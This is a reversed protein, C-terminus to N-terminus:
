PSTLYCSIPYHDSHNVRHTKYNVSRFHDDYLIYDIRFSPLKGAYSNGLGRGSERFADNLDRTIFAYTFSSPTDNFDGCVIVPFASAEIYTRLQRVENSRKINADRLKKLVKRSGDRIEDNKSNLDVQTLFDYDDFGFRFSELHINFVRITDGGILIDSVLMLNRQEDRQVVFSSVIPYRSLTV